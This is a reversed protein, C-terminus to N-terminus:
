RNLRQLLDIVRQLTAVDLPEGEPPSDIFSNIYRADDAGRENWVSRMNNRLADGFTGQGLTIGLDDLTKQFTVKMKRTTEVPVPYVDAEIVDSGEDGDVKNWKIQLECVRGQHIVTLRSM